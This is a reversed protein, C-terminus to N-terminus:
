DPKDPRTTPPRTKDICIKRIRKQENGIKELLFPDFETINEDQEPVPIHHTHYLYDILYDSRMIPEIMEYDLNVRTGKRDIMKKAIEKADIVIALKLGEKFPFGNDILLHVISNWEQECKRDETLILKSIAYDVLTQTQLKESKDIRVTHDLLRKRLSGLARVGVITALTIAHAGKHGIRFPRGLEYGATNDSCFDFIRGKPIHLTGTITIEEEQCGMDRYISTKAGRKLMAEPDIDHHWKHILEHIWSCEIKSKVLEPEGNVLCLVYSKTTSLKCINEDFLFGNRKAEKLIIPKGLSLIRKLLTAGTAMRAIKVFKRRVVNEWEESGQLQARTMFDFYLTASIKKDPKNYTIWSDLTESNNIM